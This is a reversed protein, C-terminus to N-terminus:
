AMRFVFTQEESPKTVGPRGPGQMTFTELLKFGFEAHIDRVVDALPYKRSGIKINKVSWCSVGNPALCRLCQLIVPRLWTFVWTEWSMGEKVSQDGGTYLELTYYPPSTLIMDVYGSPVTQLYHEAPGEHIQADRERQIDALIGQLGRFTRPDPECGMYRSGAALTGLMRGGWGVCPDLVRTAGYRKVLFKSLGARYKTVSALGGSLVLTRRIESKYPTSHMQTNLLIAKKLSEVSMLSAVSVGKSNTVQWFHPMHHDLLKHGQRSRSDLSTCDSAVLSEWDRYREVDTYEDVLIAEPHAALERALTDVFAHFEPEADPTLASKPVSGTFNHYASNKLKNRLGFKQNLVEM